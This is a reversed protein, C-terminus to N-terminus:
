KKSGGKRWKALMEEARRDADGAAKMMALVAMVLIALLCIGLMLLIVTWTM